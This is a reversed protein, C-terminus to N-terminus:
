DYYGADQMIQRVSADMDNLATETDKEGLIAAAVDNGVANYLALTEPLPPYRVATPLSEQIAPFHARISGYEELLSARAPQGTGEVWAKGIAPDQKNGSCCYKVFEWAAAKNNSFVPILMGL